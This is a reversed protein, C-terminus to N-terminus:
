QENKKRVRIITEKVLAKFFDMPNTKYFQNIILENTPNHIIDKSSYIDNDLEFSHREDINQNTYFDNKKDNCNIGSGDWGENRVLSITPMLCYKNELIQYCSYGIDNVSFMSKFAQNMFYVYNKKSHNRLRILKTLYSYNPYECKITKRVSDWKKYFSGYGWASFFSQEKIIKSGDSEWKVPYSYGCTFMVDDDDKILELTKDMYELFCPSFVNDDESFIFRDYKERVISHLNIINQSAGVNENYKIVNIQKFGTIGSELYNRIQDNGVKYKESPPYDLGIFLETYKAYENKQLSSILNVFHDYRNLTPILVPAYIM